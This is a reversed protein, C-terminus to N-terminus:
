FPYLLYVAFPSSMSFTPYKMDYMFCLVHFNDIHLQVIKTICVFVRSTEASYLSFLAFALFFFFDLSILGINVFRICVSLLSNLCILLGPFHYYRYM